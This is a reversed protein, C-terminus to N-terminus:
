SDWEGARMLSEVRGDVTVGDVDVQSSGIMWDIHINSRNAGRNVLDAQSLAAGGRFCKSYSQGLALHSAANEDFLTSYFLLGSRSIPSSAPVLAVEGLRRAGEDTDLVKQLVHAGTRADAEVVRGDAFRISIDEILTGQYALPRTSRVFGDVRDKHPATFVEETPINGNCELGNKTSATSAQWEHDDALGVKLDTGPARFRLAAYRKDNLLSARRKLRAAHAKWAAIPDVERIRCTAFIIDWLKAQAQEDSENPFVVRAWAPTAYPVVTWNTAFSATLELAPRYANAQARNARAIKLPDQERLLGPDEGVIRMRAAGNRIAAAMGEYLWHAARDFSQDPAFRFRSLTAVDDSFLTTVLAAGAKYAHETIRRVLPLAEIPATIVLEQGAALGLGFTVAVAALRDLCVGHSLASGETEARTPM